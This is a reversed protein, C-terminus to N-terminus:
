EEATQERVQLFPKEISPASFVDCGRLGPYMGPVGIGGRRDSRELNQETNGGVIAWANRLSMVSRVSRLIGKERKLIRSTEDCFPCGLNEGM